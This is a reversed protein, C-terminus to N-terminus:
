VLGEMLRGLLATIEEVSKDALPTGEFFESPKDDRMNCWLAESAKKLADEDVHKLLASLLMSKENAEKEGEEALFNYSELTTIKDKQEKIQALLAVWEEKKPIEGAAEALAHLLSTQKAMSFGIIQTARQEWHFCAEACDRCISTDNHPCGWRSEEGKSSVKAVAVVTESLEPKMQRMVTYTKAIIEKALREEERNMGGAMVQVGGLESM